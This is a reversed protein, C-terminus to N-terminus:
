SMLGEERFSVWGEASIIMHDHVAIDLLNAAERVSRTIRIDADSPKMCGSPHNHILIMSTACHILANKIIERPFVVAQNITGPQIHLGILRSQNDMYLVIMKEIDSDVLSRAFSALDATCSIKKDPYPFDPERFRRTELRYACKVKGIAKKETGTIMYTVGKKTTLPQHNRGRPYGGQPVNKDANNM